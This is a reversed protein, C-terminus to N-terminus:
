KGNGVVRQAEAASQCETANQATEEARFNEMYFAM